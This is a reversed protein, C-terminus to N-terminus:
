RLVNGYRHSTISLAQERLWRTLELRGIGSIPASIVNLGADHAARLVIDGFTEVTRLFEAHQALDRLRAAFSEESEEEAHSITLPAGCLDAAFRALGEQLSDAAGLRLVVGRCPRYRFINQEFRLGAFDHPVAFHTDWAERYSRKARECDLPAEDRADVFLRTYNPGGAKAGPGISSRKWGGFPQRQVIAGTIARNVYLNGAAVRETWANVEEEDLSHLGATLGYVVANQLQIAHELDRARMLGLVPGFCETYHFWSGERVGLRIGPTWL